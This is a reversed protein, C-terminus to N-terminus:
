SVLQMRGDRTVLTQVIREGAKYDRLIVEPIHVQLFAGLNKLDPEGEMWCLTCSPRLLGMAESLMPESDRSLLLHDATELFVDGVSTEQMDAVAAALTKGTGRDETDTQVTVMGDMRSICVVQVPQLKGIDKGASPEASLVAVAVIIGLYVLWRKM